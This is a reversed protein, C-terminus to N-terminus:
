HETYFYAEKEFFLSRYNKNGIGRELSYISSFLFLNYDIYFVSNMLKVLNNDQNLLKKEYYDLMPNFKMFDETQYIHVIEHALVENQKNDSLYNTAILITNGRATGDAYFNYDENYIPATNFVLQGTKFSLNANFKKNDIFNYAFNLFSLPMVSYKLKLKDKTTIELHNFGLNLYWYEGFKNNLSGNITMSNGAANLLKSSWASTAYGTKGFDYLMKKSAFVMSGGACGQWFGNLFAKGTKVDDKKHIVAGLGSIIGSSLTNYLFAETNNNQSVASDIKFVLLLIIISKFFRM